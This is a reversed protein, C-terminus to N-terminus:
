KFHRGYKDLIVGHTKDDDFLPLNNAWLDNVRTKIIIIEHLYKHVLTKMYMLKLNLKKEAMHELKDYFSVLKLAKMQHDLPGLM